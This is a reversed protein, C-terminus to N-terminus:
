SASRLAALARASSADVRWSRGARRGTLSGDQVLQLVRRPSTHLMSAVEQTTLETATSICVGEAPVMETEDSGDASIASTSETSRARDFAASHEASSLRLQTWAVEIQQALGEHGQSRLWLADKRVQAGSSNVMQELVWRAAYPGLVAYRVEGPSTM